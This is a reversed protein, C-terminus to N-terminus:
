VKTEASRADEEPHGKRQANRADHNPMRIPDANKAIMKIKSELRSSDRSREDLPMAIRIWEIARAARRRPQRWDVRQQERQGELEEADVCVRRREEDHGRIAQERSQDCRRNVLNRCPAEVRISNRAPRRRFSCRDRQPGSPQPGYVRGR